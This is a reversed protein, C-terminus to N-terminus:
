STRARWKVFDTRVDPDPPSFTGHNIGIEFIVLDLSIWALEWLAMKKGKKCRKARKAEEEFRGRL